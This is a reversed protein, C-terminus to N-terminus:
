IHILSLDKFTLIGNEFTYMNETLFNDSGALKVGVLEKVQSSLDYVPDAENKVFVNFWDFIATYDNECISISADALKNIEKSERQNFESQTFHLNTPCTGNSAGKNSIATIAYTDLLSDAKNKILNSLGGAEEVGPLTIFQRDTETFTGNDFQIGSQFWFRNEIQRSQLYENLPVGTIEEVVGDISVEFDETTSTYNQNNLISTATTGAAGGVHRLECRDRICM